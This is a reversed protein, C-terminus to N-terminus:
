WSFFIIIIIIIIIIIALVPILGPVEHNLVRLCLSQNNLGYPLDNKKFYYIFWTANNHNTILTEKM